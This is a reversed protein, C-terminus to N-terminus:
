SGGGDQGRGEMLLGSQDPRGEGGGEHPGSGGGEDAEAEGERRAWRGGQGGGRGAAASGRTGRPRARAIAASSAPPVDGAGREQGPRDGAEEGGTGRRGM